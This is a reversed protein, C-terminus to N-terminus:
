LEELDDGFLNRFVGPFFQPAEIDKLLHLSASVQFIIRVLSTGGLIMAKIIFRPHIDPLCPDFNRSCMSASATRMPPPTFLPIMSARSSAFPSSIRTEIRLIM